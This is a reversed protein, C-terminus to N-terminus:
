SRSGARDRRMSVVMAIIWGICGGIAASPLKLLGGVGVLIVVCGIALFAITRKMAEAQVAAQASTPRGTAARARGSSL